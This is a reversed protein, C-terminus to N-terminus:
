EDESGAVRRVTAQVHSTAGTRSNRVTWPEGVLEYVEGDVEVADSTRLDEGPRLYLAWFTDSTEGAGIREDRRRQQLECVTEVETEEAIPNGFEDTADGDRRLILTCPRSILRSIV